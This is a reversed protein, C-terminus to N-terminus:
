KKQREIFLRMAREIPIRATASDRDIWGYTGLIENERRQQEQLDAEPSIQLEPESKVVPVDVVSPRADRRGQQQEFYHFMWWIGAHVAIGGIVLAVAFYLVYRPEMDTKEHGTM